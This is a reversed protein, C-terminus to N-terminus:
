SADQANDIGPFAEPTGEALEKKKNIQELLYQALESVGQGTRCSLTFAELGPNITKIDGLAQEISFNTQEILDIKNIVVVKARQFMAPYKIPKDDGETVSLAVMRIEEGLDYSAPCVLNGVNEIILLELGDLPFNGLLQKIMTSDLHCGGCTNIQIVPIGQKEIREADKSTYLDGEIVAMKVKDKLEKILNELISTKGAGPSGMFNIVYVNKSKFERRLEESLLDNAKLINSVVQVEKSM